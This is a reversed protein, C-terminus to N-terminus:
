TEYTGGDVRFEIGTVFRSEDSALYLAAYAVDEPEGVRKLPIESLIDALYEPDNYYTNSLPTNNAGCVITNIRIHNPALSKVLSKSMGQLAAKSATYALHGDYSRLAAISSINIISGKDMPIMFPVVHKIMYYPAKFNLEMIEDLKKDNFNDEAEVSGAAGASNVLIDVTGYKAVTMDVANAAIKQDTIDGSFWTCEGGDKRIKESVKMLKEKDRAIIVVKAGEASFAEAMAKGLGSSGGTIIAVKNKLRM